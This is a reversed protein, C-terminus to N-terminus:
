EEIRSQEELQSIFSSLAYCSAAAQNRARGATEHAIERPTMLKNPSDIRAGHHVLTKATAVISEPTHVPCISALYQLATADDKDSAIAQPDLVDHALLASIVKANKQAKQERNPGHIPQALINFLLRSKENDKLAVGAEKLLKAIEPHQVDELMELLRGREQLPPRAGKEILFTAFDPDNYLLAIWLADPEPAEGEYDSNEDRENPQIGNCIGAALFSRIAHYTEDDKSFTNGRRAVDLMYRYQTKCADPVLDRSMLGLWLFNLEQCDFPKKDATHTTSIAITCAIFLLKKFMTTINGLTSPAVYDNPSYLVKNTDTLSYAFRRTNNIRM